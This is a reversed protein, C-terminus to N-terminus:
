LKEFQAVNSEPLELLPNKSDLLILERKPRVVELLPYQSFLELSTNSELIIKWIENLWEKNPISTSEPDWDTIKQEPKLEYGLLYALSIANFKKVNTHKQFEDQEFVEKLRTEKDNKESFYVFNSSNVHPVLNQQENTALYYKQKSQKDFKGWKNDYLPILYIDLIFILLKILQEYEYKNSLNNIGKLNQRVMGAPVPALEVGASKLQNIMDLPLQVSKVNSYEALIEIIFKDNEFFGEQLSVYSGSKTASWFLPKDTPLKKLVEQGFEKVYSAGKEKN